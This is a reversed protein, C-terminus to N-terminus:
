KRNLPKGLSKFIKSCDVLEDLRRRKVRQTDPQACELESTQQVGHEQLAHLTDFLYGYRSRSATVSPSSIDFPTTPRGSSMKSGVTQSPVADSFSSSSVSVVAASSFSSSSM